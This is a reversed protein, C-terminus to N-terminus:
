TSTVSRQFLANTKNTSYPSHIEDAVFALTSANGEKQFDDEM